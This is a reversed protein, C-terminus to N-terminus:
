DDRLRTLLATDNLMPYVMIYAYTNLRTNKAYSTTGATLGGRLSSHVDMAFYEASAVLQNTIVIDYPMVESPMSIM